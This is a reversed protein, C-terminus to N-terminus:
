SKCEAMLLTVLHEGQTEGLMSRVLPRLAELLAPLQAPTVEEPAVGLAKQSFTKISIRATHPGVYIALRRQVREVPTEKRVPPEAV